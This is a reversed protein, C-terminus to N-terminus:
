SGMPMSSLRASYRETKPLRIDQRTAKVQIRIDGVLVDYGKQTNGAVKGGTVKAVLDEAYDGIINATRSKQEAAYLASNYANWVKATIMATIM